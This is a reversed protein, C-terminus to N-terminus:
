ALGCLVEHKGTRCLKLVEAFKNQLCQRLRVQLQFLQFLKIGTQAAHADRPHMEAGQQQL